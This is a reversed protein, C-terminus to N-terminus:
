ANFYRRAASCSQRERAGLGDSHRTKKRHAGRKEEWRKKVKKTKKRKKANGIRQKQKQKTQEKHVARYM